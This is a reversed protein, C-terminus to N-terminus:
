LLHTCVPEYMCLPNAEGQSTVADLRQAAVGARGAAALSRCRQEGCARGRQLQNAAAHRSARRQLGHARHLLGMPEGM